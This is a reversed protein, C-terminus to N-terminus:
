TFAAFLQAGSILAFGNDGSGVFFGPTGQVGLTSGEQMQASIKQAYKGSDLCTNFQGTNLGSQQAYQKFTAVGGVVGSEFLLDHMETFKGQEAACESAEAAKQANPHFSLPFHRYIISVEEDSYANKIQALADSHARACFPCEFDSYEVIAVKSDKNGKVFNDDEAIEVNARAGVPPLDSPNNAVVNGTVTADRTSFMYIAGIILIGFLAFTSYKWLTEKKITLSDDVANPIKEM